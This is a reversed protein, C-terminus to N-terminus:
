IKHIMGLKTPNKPPISHSNGQTILELLRLRDFKHVNIKLYAQMNKVSM